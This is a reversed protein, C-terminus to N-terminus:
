EPWAAEDCLCWANAHLRLLSAPLQTSIKETLLRKMAERKHAGNVLLIIKRSLLIDAIGMTLGFSPRTSLHQIMQHTQSHPTLRAVHAHPHLENAPENMALHGNGGIGLICVDPPGLQALMLRLRGAETEADPADGRFTFYRDASIHLPTLLHQHIYTECSAADDPALGGWEDLKLIRVRSFRQPATQYQKALLEYLRKPSGGTAVCLLLDPKAALEDALMGAAEESIQEYSDRRIFRLGHSSSNMSLIDSIM